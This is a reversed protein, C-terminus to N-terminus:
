VILVSGFEEFLALVQERTVDLTLKKRNFITNLRTELACGESFMLRGLIWNLEKFRIVRPYMPLTLALKGSSNLGTVAALYTLVERGEIAREEDAFHLLFRELAAHSIPAMKKVLDVM